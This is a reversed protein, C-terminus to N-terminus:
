LKFLKSSVWGYTFYRNCVRCRLYCGELLDHSLVTNEPFENNLIKSFVDLDYIGKGTFIGEGFNDQYFDSVADSYCDTGGLGAFIKTFLNKNSEELGVGVRPQIIGYGEIVRDNTSNLIPLNLIHAMSGILEFASNLVLDTDADLTIIYKIQPINKNNETKWKEITNEFWEFKTNNLIYENFQNIYGRKREYGFFSEEKDNWLRKRYIFNFKPFVNDTYKKNLNDVLQVGFDSLENDFEEIEKSSTSCDGLLTFYINDSKNALYYVEMKKILESIKEKSKIITPIIVITSYKQPINNTIELKPIIKPKIIKSAIYQILQTLISQIPILLFIFILFAYFINETRIKIINSYFGCIIATISWILLIYIRTKTKSNLINIKKGTINYLLEKKGEDILYYGIHNKKSQQYKQSALEICKKAIYIESIKTKKSLEKIKNRYNIKTKYDMKDYIKAPDNKLIEEVGNIEEFIQLFNIRSLKNISIISNGISVKRVAIDFHEKKIVDEVSTGMKSVEDELVNIFKYARRGYSRLRYSMHEIFPYKMEGYGLNKTKYYPVNKYKLKDESRNEILREIINEVKYKQIQSSYIKECVNRINEILAIQLFLGINWIEEMNLTKKTQYAKLLDKLIEDDIKADTYSVIQTALVYIRAFGYDAGDEIGIFNTYKKPSLDKIITKVTKEIIYFNDLIWEGAPHIPIDSKLHENLLKFVMYIYEYNEKVRPVPYTNKDCKNKLSHSSALKQMYKELQYKDIVAGNVNLIRNKKM